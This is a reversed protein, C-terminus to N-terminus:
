DLQVFVGNGAELDVILRDNSKREETKGDKLLTVKKEGNFVIEVSASPKDPLSYHTIFLAEKGQENVFKGILLPCDAKASLVSTDSFDLYEPWQEFAPDKWEPPLVAVTGLYRYPLYSDAFSQVFANAKTVEEYLKGPKKDRGIIAEQHKMFQENIGPSAYCFHSFARYGFAFYVMFQFRLMNFDQAVDNTAFAMTQIFCHCPLNKRRAFYGLTSLCRLWLPIIVIKDEKKFLPYHDVSLVNGEPMVREHMEVYKQVYEFYTQTKLQDLTAYNPLLNIECRMTKPYLEYFEKIQEELKPFREASPEDALMIAPVNDFQLFREDKFTMRRHTVLPIANIGAGQAAKIADIQEDDGAFKCAEGLLYMANIGCNRALEYEEVTNGPALWGGIMFKKEM